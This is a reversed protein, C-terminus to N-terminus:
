HWWLVIWTWTPLAKAFTIVAQNWVTAESGDLQGFSGARLYTLRKGYGTQDKITEGGSDRYYFTCELPLLEPNLGRIQDFLAPDRDM